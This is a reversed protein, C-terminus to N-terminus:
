AEVVEKAQKKSGSGDPAGGTKTSCQEAKESGASNVDKPMSSQSQIAAPFVTLPLSMSAASIILNFNM